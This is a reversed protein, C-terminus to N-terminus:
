CRGCAAPRWWDGALMCMALRRDASAVLAREPSAIVSSRSTQAGRRASHKGAGAVANPMQRHEDQERGHALGRRAGPRRRAECTPSPSRARSPREDQLGIRPLGGPCPRRIGPCRTPGAPLRAQAEAVLSAVRNAWARSAAPLSWAETMLAGPAVLDHTTVPTASSCGDCIPCRRTAAATEPDVRRLPLVVEGNRKPCIETAGPPWGIGAKQMPVCRVPRSRSVATRGDILLRVVGTEPACRGM